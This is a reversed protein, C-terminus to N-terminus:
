QNADLDLRVCCRGPAPDLRASMGATPLAGVMGQLLSHNMGCVLETHEAALRHFPCNSLEMGGAVPNPEYGTEGLEEAVARVLAARSGRKGARRRASRGMAAGRDAAVRDLTAKIENGSATSDTVASALLDAALDYHRPPLSVAIDDPARRYLKSTRGAGPGQRGSLRRFEVDLLGADALRDLHTAALSRAVGLAAAAQDRSVVDHQGAVFRYLARRLPDSLAAIGSIAHDAGGQSM